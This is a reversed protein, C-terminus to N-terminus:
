FARSTQTHSRNKVLADLSTKGGAYCHRRPSIRGNTLSSTRYSLTYLTSLDMGRLRIRRSRSALSPHSSPLIPPLSCGCRFIPRRGRFRRERSRRVPVTGLALAEWERFCDQGHSAPAAVFTHNATVGWYDFLGVDGAQVGDPSPKKLAEQHMNTVLTPGLAALAEYDSRRTNRDGGFAVLVRLTKAAFLPSSDKAARLSGLMTRLPCVNLTALRSANAPRPWPTRWLDIGIPLPSVKRLIEVDDPACFPVDQSPWSNSAIGDSCENHAKSGHHNGIRKHPSPALDWNQTYWHLLHPSRLFTRIVDVPSWELDCKLLEWPAADDGWETIMVVSLNRKVVVPWATKLFTRAMHFTMAVCGLDREAWKTREARNVVHELVLGTTYPYHMCGARAAITGFRSHEPESGRKLGSSVSMPSMVGIVDIMALGRASPHTKGTVTDWANWKAFEQGREDLVACFLPDDFARGHRTTSDDVALLLSDMQPLQPFLQPWVVTSADWINATTALVAGVVGVVTAVLRAVHLCLPRQM